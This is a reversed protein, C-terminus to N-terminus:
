TTSGSETALKAGLWGTIGASMVQVNLYGMQRAKRAANPAKRCLHGSCYFVLSAERDRPLDAESYTVSDLNIAGPVRAASWSQPSNVDIVTLKADGLLRHLEQPSLSKLGMLRAFM